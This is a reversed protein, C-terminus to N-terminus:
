CTWAAARPARRRHKGGRAVVQAWRHSGRRQKHRSADGTDGGQWGAGRAVAVCQWQVRWCMWYRWRNRHPEVSRDRGVQAPRSARGRRMDGHLRAGNDQGRAACPEAVVPTPAMEVPQRWQSAAVERQRCQRLLHWLNKKLM